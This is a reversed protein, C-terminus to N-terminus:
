NIAIPDQRQTNKTKSFSFRKDRKIRTNGYQTQIGLRIYNLADDVLVKDLEDEKERGATCM